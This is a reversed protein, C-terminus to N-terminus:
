LKIRIMTSIPFYFVNENPIIAAKAEIIIDFLELPTVIVGFGVSSEFLLKNDSYRSIQPTRLEDGMYKLEYFSEQFYMLGFDADIFPTLLKARNSKIRGGIFFGISNLNDGSDVYPIPFGEVAPVVFSFSGPDFERSQYIVSSKFEINKTFELFVAGSIQWGGNTHSFINGTNLRALYGGGIEFHAQSNIKISYIVVLSLVIFIVRKM